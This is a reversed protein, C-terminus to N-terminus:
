VLVEFKRREGGGGGGGGEEERGEGRGRWKQRVKPEQEREEKKPPSELKLQKSEGVAEPAEPPQSESCIIHYWWSWCHANLIHLNVSWIGERWCVCM